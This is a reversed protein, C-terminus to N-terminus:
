NPRHCAANFTEASGSFTAELRSSVALLDAPPAGRLGAAMGEVASTMADMPDLGADSSWEAVARMVAVAGSPVDGDALFLGSMAGLCAERILSIAPIGSRGSAVLAEKVLRGTIIPADGKARLVAVAEKLQEDIPQAM